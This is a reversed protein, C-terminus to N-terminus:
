QDITSRPAAPGQTEGQLIKRTKRAQTRVVLIDFFALLMATLTLWACAFWYFIFWGPHDKPTLIPQLFTSGAFVLVLAVILVAFMTKRRITQDRIVGRTAHIVFSTTRLHKEEPSNNTM